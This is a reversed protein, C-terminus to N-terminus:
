TNLDGSFRPDLNEREREIYSFLYDSLYHRRTQSEHVRVEIQEPNWRSLLEDRMARVTEEHAPDTALNRTEAPDAALDFLEPDEGHYYNLKLNDRKLMATPAHTNYEHYLESLVVNDWNVDGGVLFGALSRGDGRLGSPPNVNALECITASVDILSVNEEIQSAPRGSGPIGAPTHTAIRDEPRSVILPVRVSQEYFCMKNWRLHEGLMEGHDATYIIVTNDWLGAKQLAEYIRGIQHDLYTIMAYYTARVKRQLREDLPSGFIGTRALSRVHFPHLMDWQSENWDPLDIESEPYINLYELPAKFPPHPLVFGVSLAWPKANRDPDRIFEIARDTSYVDSELTSNWGEGCGITSKEVPSRRLVESWDPPKPRNLGNMDISLQKEFGHLQDHGRFHMKGCLATRYGVRKLHHAWTPEDESLPVGNDWVGIHQIEKGTMFAMRAPVCVPCPSYANTFVTGEEALRDLNPTRVLRHGYPGSYQPAHQDAMLVLINPRRKENMASGMNSGVISGIVSGVRAVSWVDDYM